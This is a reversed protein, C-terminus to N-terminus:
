VWGGAKVDCLFINHKMIVDDWALKSFGAYGQWDEWGLKDIQCDGPLFKLKALCGQDDEDIEYHKCFESLSVPRPLALKLPSTPASAPGDTVSHCQYAVPTQPCVGHHLYLNHLGHLFFPPQQYYPYPPLYFHPPPPYGYRMPYQQPNPPAAPVAQPAPVPVSAHHADVLAPASLAASTGSAVRLHQSEMFHASSPPSDLTM